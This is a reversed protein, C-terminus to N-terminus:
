EPPPTIADGAGNRCPLRDNEGCGDVGQEAAAVADATSRGAPQRNRSQAAHRESRLQELTAQAVEVEVLCDAKRQIDASEDQGQAGLKAQLKRLKLRAAAVSKDLRRWSPNVVEVTGPLAVAGYEILGDLDFHQMM